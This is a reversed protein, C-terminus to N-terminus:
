NIKNQWFWMQNFNVSLTINFYDEVIYKVPASARHKYEFGLNIVTKSGPAPLGFGCTVGYERVNNGSVNVYDHNYYAGLRYNVRRFFGGRQRPTYQLGGAVKWRNDFTLEGGNNDLGEVKAFPADKWKQYTLDVEALIKKDYEYSLGVGLSLPTYNNNKLTQFGITDVRSDNTMDYYAGWTQGHLSKKPTFTAGISVKNKKNLNLTYLAGIKIDWSRVQIIREFLTTSTSYIYNDYINTGFLYGVNVGLSLGKFPNYAAGAYLLNLGGGGARAESGNDIEAAIEYGVSSYPLLGISAGMKKSLPFQMTIYDIGGGTSSAKKDGEKAQLISVDIGADWLFTLSDIAAYSAPNMVNIQRGGNMAYGVGGMARQASTAYDNLIGYGFMSYPSTTNAQAQAVSSCALAAISLLLYRLIKM